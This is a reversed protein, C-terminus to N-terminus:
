FDNNGICMKVCALCIKNLAKKENGHEYIIKGKTPSIQPKFELSQVQLTPV